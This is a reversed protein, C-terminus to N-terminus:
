IINRFEVMEHTPLIIRRRMQCFTKIHSALLFTEVLDFLLKLIPGTLYKVTLGDEAYITSILIALASVIEVQFNVTLLM